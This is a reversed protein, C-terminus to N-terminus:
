KGIDKMKENFISFFYRRIGYFDTKGYPMREIKGLSWLRELGEYSLNEKTALLIYTEIEPAAIHACNRAIEAYEDSQAMEVLQDRRKKERLGYDEWTARPPPRYIEKPPLFDFREQEVKNYSDCLRKKGPCDRRDCCVSMCTRCLCNRCKRM